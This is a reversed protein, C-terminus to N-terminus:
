VPSFDVSVFMRDGLARELYAEALQAHQNTM